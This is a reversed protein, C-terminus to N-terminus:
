KARRARKKGKTSTVVAGFLDTQLPNGFMDTPGYEVKGEAVVHGESSTLNPLEIVPRPLSEVLPVDWYPDYKRTFAELGMESLEDFKALCVQPASSYSKHSFTSLVHAYQERSLGYAQAVVADIAARVDWRADDGALVPWTHRPTGERWEDGLQEAWLPAYGAHNCVLRLAVRAFFKDANTTNPVPNGNLIFLNVNAGTRVRLAWDFIFSNTVAMLSLSKAVSHLQPSRDIPASNGTIGGSPLLHFVATRENTSSAIARYSLRFYRAPELWDPRDILSDIAILYRPRDV